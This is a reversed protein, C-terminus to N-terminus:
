DWVAGPYHARIRRDKTILPSGSATAHGVIVRDFPDRTWSQLRSHASVVKFPWDCTVLGIRGGLDSVMEAATPRIRGIEHLLQLELSVIPSIRLEDRNIRERVGAPLLDTRGAYIWIVLHTDLYTM